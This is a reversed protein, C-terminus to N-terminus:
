YLEWDDVVTPPTGIVMGYHDNANLGMSPVPAQIRSTVVIRKYFEGPVEALRCNPNFGNFGTLTSPGAESNEFILFCDTVPDLNSDYLRGLLQNAGTNSGGDWAVFCQGDKDTCCTVRNPSVTYGVSVYDEDITQLTNCDIRTVFVGTGGGDEADAVGKGALHAFDVAIHSSIHTGDGRGWDNNSSSGDPLPYAWPQGTRTVGDWKGILTGDTQNWLNMQPGTRLLLGLSCAAMNEWQSFGNEPPDQACWPAVVNNGDQDWISTAVCRQGTPHLLAARDEQAVAFNGNSLARVTGGFRIQQGGQSGSAWQGYTPDFVNSRKTSSGDANRQLIQVSAVQSDYSFGSGYSPFDAPYAWPTCENGIMYVEAEGERAECAIRAPNGDTRAIDNNVLWPAGADTQFGDREQAPNDDVDFWAVVIRETVGAFDGEAESNMAVGLTGSSFAGTFAEWNSQNQVGNDWLGAEPVRVELGVSVPGVNQVTTQAIAPVALVCLATFILVKQRM